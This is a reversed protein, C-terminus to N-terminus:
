LRKKEGQLDPDISEMFHKFLIETSWVMRSLMLLTARPRHYEDRMGLEDIVQRLLGQELVPLNEVSDYNFKSEEQTCVYQLLHLTDVEKLCKNQIDDIVPLRDHFHVYNKMTHILHNKLARQAGYRAMLIGELQHQESLSGALLWKLLIPQKDLTKTRIAPSGLKKWILDNITLQSFMKVNHRTNGDM